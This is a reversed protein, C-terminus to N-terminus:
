RQDFDSLKLGQSDLIGKLKRIDSDRMGLEIEQLENRTQLDNREMEVAQAKAQWFEKQVKLREVDAMAIAAQKMLGLMLDGGQTMGSLDIQRAEAAVKDIDAETKKRRLKPFLYTSGSAILAVLAYYVFELLSHPSATGQQM